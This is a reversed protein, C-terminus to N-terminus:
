RSLPAGDQERSNSVGLLMALFSKWWCWIQAQNSFITSSCYASSHEHQPSAEWSLHTTSPLQDYCTQILEKCKNGLDEIM